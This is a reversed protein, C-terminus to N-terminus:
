RSRIAKGVYDEYPLRHELGKSRKVRFEQASTKKTNMAIFPHEPGQEAFCILLGEEKSVNM